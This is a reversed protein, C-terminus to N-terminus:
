GQNKHFTKYIITKTYAGQAMIHIIYQMVNGSLMKHVAQCVTLDTFNIHFDPKVNLKLTNQLNSM